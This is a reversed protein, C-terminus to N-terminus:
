KCYLAICFIDPTVSAHNLLQIVRKGGVLVKRRAESQKGFYVELDLVEMKVIIM